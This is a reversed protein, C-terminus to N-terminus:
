TRGCGTRVHEIADIGSLLEGVMADIQASRGQGVASEVRGALLGLEKFGFMGANGALSHCLGALSARDGAEWAAAIDARDRRARELFRQRFAGMRESLDASDNM